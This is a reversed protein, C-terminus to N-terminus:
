YSNAPLREVSKFWRIHVVYTIRVPTGAHYDKYDWWGCSVNDSGADHSVELYYSTTCGDDDCDTDTHKGVIVGRHSVWDGKGIDWAFLALVALILLAIIIRHPFEVAYAILSTM